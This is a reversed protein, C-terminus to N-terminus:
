RGARLYERDSRARNNSAVATAAVRGSIREVKADWNGGDDVFVRVAVEGGAGGLMRETDHNSYVRSGSPMAVLERGREGVMALGGAFNRTGGAFGPIGFAGLLGSMGSQFLKSAFSGLLSSALSRLGKGLSEGRLLVGELVNILGSAAQQMVGMARPASGEIGIALGEGINRGYGEFVKSPSQIQTEDTFAGKVRQALGKVAGTVSGAANSIGNKLGAAIDAGWGKADEILGTVSERLGRALEGIADVGAQYLGALGSRINAVFEQAWTLASAALEGLADGAAIIANRLGNGLYDTVDLVIQILDAFIGVLPSLAQVLNSIAPGMRLMAQDLQIGIADGLLSVQSRAEGASAILEEDFKVGLEDLREAMEKIAAGSNRFAPVLATADNALAEMYFTMESQSVNADELATVYLALADSSSLNEFSEITLGVKPAINEFFDRLQGGGTASFDGFKDNVDKLIDALKEQNIGYQEVARAATWFEEASTGAIAAQKSLESMNGAARNFGAFAAAGSAAVGAAVVAAKKGWAVLASNGQKLGEQFQSSDLGLTVRLSGILSGTAM